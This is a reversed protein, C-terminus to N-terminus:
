GLYNMIDTWNTFRIARDDIYIKAVPKINTVEIPITTNKYKLQIREEIWNKVMLHTKARRATFVILKYGLTHLNYLSEIAGPIEDHLIEDNAKMRDRFQHIVGDFDIAVIKSVCQPTLDEYAKGYIKSELSVERQEHDM